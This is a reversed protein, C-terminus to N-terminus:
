AVWVPRATPSGRLLTKPADAAGRSSASSQADAKKPRDPLWGLKRWEDKIAFVDDGAFSHLIVDNSDDADVIALSRDAASHGPGPILGQDGRWDGGRKRTIEQALSM